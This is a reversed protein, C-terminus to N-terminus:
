KIKKKKKEKNVCLEEFWRKERDADAHEVAIDKLNRILVGDFGLELSLEFCHIIM